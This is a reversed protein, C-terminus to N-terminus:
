FRTSYLNSNRDIFHSLHYPAFSRIPKLQKFSLTKQNLLRNLLDNDEGGWGKFKEDYGGVSLLLKVSTVYLGGLGGTSGKLPGKNKSGSYAYNYKLSKFDTISNEIIKKTDSESLKAADFLALENTKLNKIVELFSDYDQSDIFLDSDIFIIFDFNEKDLDKIIKNNKKSKEFVKPPYPIHISNEIIKTPSFDYVQSSCDIGNSQLFSCLKEMQPVLFKMNRTRTCSSTGDTWFPM